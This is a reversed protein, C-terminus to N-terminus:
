KPIELDGKLKEYKDTIKQIEGSKALETIASDLKAKLETDEKRVGGGVGPGFIDLDEPVVAKYECCASGQDTNLFDKLASSDAQVYDLRGAALDNNAEDQTQYTKVEAGAAAFYKEAYRQHTTSVQVGITKGKLHDPTIDMDGTKAGIVASPTNYYWTTFDITKKREATISM